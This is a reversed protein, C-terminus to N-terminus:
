HNVTASAGGGGGKAAFGNIIIPGQAVAYVQGDAGRLSTLLLLGGQLTSCDGIAAATIDIRSGPQAFPPLTATVMVAATNNVRIATPSVTVGMRALINTLSQASFVTQRRDGTGALGVVLGYGLLQNDRMGEFTVLEKLRAAAPAPNAGLLALLLCFLPTSRAM